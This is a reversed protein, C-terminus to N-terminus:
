RTLVIKRVLSGRNTELRCFYVGAPATAGTATRGDWMVTKVGLNDVGDALTAVLRGTVDYIYLCVQMAELLVYSITVRRTFPNPYPSALSFTLRSHVSANDDIGALVEYFGGIKAISREPNQPITVWYNYDWPDYEIGRANWGPFLMSHVISLDNRRLEYLAVSDLNTGTNNFWTYTLLLNTDLSGYYPSIPEIAM